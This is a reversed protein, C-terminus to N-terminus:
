FSFFSEGSPLRTDGKWMQLTGGSHASAITNTGPCFDMGEVVSGVIDFIDLLDISDGIEVDWITISNLTSLLLPSGDRNLAVDRAGSLIEKIPKRTSIDWIQPIISRYAVVRHGDRSM